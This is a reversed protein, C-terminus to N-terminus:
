IDWGVYYAAQEDEVNIKSRTYAASNELKSAIIDVWGTYCEPDYYIMAGPECCYNKERRINWIPWLDVTYFLLLLMSFHIHDHPDLVKIIPPGWFGGLITLHGHGLGM